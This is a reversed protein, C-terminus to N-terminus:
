ILSIVLKLCIFFMIQGATTITTLRVLLVYHKAGATYLESIHLATCATKGMYASTYIQGLM